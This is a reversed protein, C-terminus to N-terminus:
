NYAQDDIQIQLHGMASGSTRVNCRVQEAYKILDEEKLAFDQTNFESNVNGIWEPNFLVEYGESEEDDSDELWEQLNKVDSAISYKTFQNSPEFSTWFM